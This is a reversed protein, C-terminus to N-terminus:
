AVVDVDAKTCESASKNMIQIYHATITGGAMVRTDCRGLLKIVDRCLRFATLTVIIHTSATKGQRGEHRIYVRTNGTTTFTTVITSEARNGATEVSFRVIM